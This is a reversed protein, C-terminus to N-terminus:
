NVEFILASGNNYIIGNGITINGSVNLNNSVDLNVFWGKLWRLLSSGFSYLANTTPENTQNTFMVNTSNIKNNLTNNMTTYEATSTFLPRVWYPEIATVIPVFMLILFLILLKKNM